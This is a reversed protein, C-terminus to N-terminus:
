PKEITVHISLKYVLGDALPHEIKQHISLAM